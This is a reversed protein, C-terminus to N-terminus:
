LRTTIMPAFFAAHVCRKKQISFFKATITCLANGSKRHVIQFVSVSLLLISKAVSIAAEIAFLPKMQYRHLAFVQNM